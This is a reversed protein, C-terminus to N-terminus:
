MLNPGNRISTRMFNGPQVGALKEAFAEAEEYASPVLPVNWSPGRRFSITLDRRDGTRQCRAGTLCHLPATRSVSGYREYYGRWRDAIWLVRRNTLVVLDGAVESRVRLPGWRRSATFPPSFWRVQLREDKRLAAALRNGFKIDLPPGFAVAEGRLCEEGGSLYTEALLDLLEIVPRESRTNYPLDIQFETTVFRLWGILLIHGVEFFVLDPLSIRIPASNQRPHTLVVIAGGDLLLIRPPNRSRGFWDPDDRPLFVGARFSKEFPRIPFDAPSDDESRIPYSFIYRRSDVDGATNIPM